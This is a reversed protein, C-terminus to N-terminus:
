AASLKETRAASLQRTDYRWGVFRLGDSDLRLVFRESPHQLELVFEAHSAFRGARLGAEHHLWTAVWSLHQKLVALSTLLSPRVVVHDAAM